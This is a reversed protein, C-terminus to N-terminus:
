TQESVNSWVDIMRNRSFRNPTCSGWMVGQRRVTQPSRVEANSKEFTM